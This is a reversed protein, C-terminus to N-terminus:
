HELFSCTPTYYPLTSTSSSLSVHCLYHTARPCLLSSSDHPRLSVYTPLDTYILSTLSTAGVLVYDNNLNVWCCGHEVLDPLRLYRDPLVCLPRSSILM